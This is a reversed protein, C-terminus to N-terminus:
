IDWARRMEEAIDGEGCKEYIVISKKLFEFKKAELLEETSSNNNDKNESRFAVLKAHYTVGLHSLVNATESDDTGYEKECIKLAKMLFKESDSLEGDNRHAEGMMILIQAAGPHEEGYVSQRISLLKSLIESRQQRCFLLLNKQRRLLLNQKKKMKKSSITEEQKEQEDNQENSLFVDHHKMELILHEYREALQFLIEFFGDDTNDDYGHAAIEGALRKKLQLIQDDQDELIEDDEEFEESDEEKKINEQELRRHDNNDEAVDSNNNNNRQNNEGSFSSQSYDMDNQNNDDDQNNNNNYARAYVRDNQNQTAIESKNRTGTTSSPQQQKYTEPSFDTYKALLEASNHNRMSPVSSSGKSQSALKLKFECVACVKGIPTINKCCDKCILRGCERCHSRRRLVGFEKLCNRCRDVTSDPEWNRKFHKHECKEGHQCPRSSGLPNEHLYPCCSAKEMYQCDGTLFDCCVPWAMIQIEKGVDIWGSLSSAPNRTTTTDESSKPRFPLEQDQHQNFDSRTNLSQNEDDDNNISNNNNNNNKKKEKSSFM